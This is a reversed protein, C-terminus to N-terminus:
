RRKLSESLFLLTRKTARRSAFQRCSRSQSLRHSDQKRGM